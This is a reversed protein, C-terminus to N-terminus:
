TLVNRDASLAQESCVIIAPLSWVMRVLQVLLSYQSMKSNWWEVPDITEEDQYLAVRNYCRM